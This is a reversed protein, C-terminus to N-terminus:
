ASRVARSVREMSSRCSCLWTRRREVHTERAYNLPVTFFQGLMSIAGAHAVVALVQKFTAEGGM